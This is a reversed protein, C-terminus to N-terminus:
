TTGVLRASLTAIAPVGARVFARTQFLRRRAPILQLVTLNSSPSPYARLTARRRRSLYGCSVTAKWSSGRADVELSSVDVRVRPLPLRLVSGNHLVQSAVGPQVPVPAVVDERGGRRNPRDDFGGPRLGPRARYTPLAVDDATWTRAQRPGDDSTLPVLDGDPGVGFVEIPAPTETM